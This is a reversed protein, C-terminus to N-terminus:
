FNIKNILYKKHNINFIKNLILIIIRIIIQINIKIILKMKTVTNFIKILSIVFKKILM